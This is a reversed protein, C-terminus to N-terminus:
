LRSAGFCAHREMSKWKWFRGALHLLDTEQCSYEQFGEAWDQDSGMFFSKGLTIQM